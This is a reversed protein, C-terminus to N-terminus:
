LIGNKLITVVILQANKGTIFLLRRAASVFILSPSGSDASSFHGVWQRVTSLDETQKGSINLLCQHIDTPVMKEVPLLANVSRQKMHVETDSVMRDSQREAAM